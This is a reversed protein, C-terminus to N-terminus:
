DEMEEIREMLGLLACMYVADPTHPRAFMTGADGFKRAYEFVKDLRAKEEATLQRRFNKWKAEEIRIAKRFTPITRGM